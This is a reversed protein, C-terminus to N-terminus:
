RRQRKELEHIALVVTPVVALYIARPNAFPDRSQTVSLATTVRALRKRVVDAATGRNMVNCARGGTRPPLRSNLRAAARAFRSALLLQPGLPGRAAKELEREHSGEQDSGRTM